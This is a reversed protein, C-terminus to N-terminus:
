NSAPRLDSLRLQINKSGNYENWEPFFVLDVQHGLKPLKGALRFGIAGLSRGGAGVKLRLHKAGVIRSQQVTVGRLMFQPTPNGLGFPQLCRLEELFEPTLAVLDSEVDLTLSPQFDEEQLKARVRQDFREQFKELNEQPLSLGAAYAHGGFKRLLDGCAHLAEVLHLGRISRASGKWDGGDQTLVISPLHFKEVLRSAVIGIVGQHWHGQAVVLSRFRQHLGQAEIVAFAEQAIEDELEKRSQNAGDLRQALDRAEGPDESLLLRVGLAADELRGVANIRPGIWFAVQDARVEDGELGSVEKLAKLGVRSTQQLVQLGERVLIRNIGTLPAMDAITGVAVLDLAQRLNPERDALAGAERLAQRLGVLLYFAVGVGALQKGPFSDGKQKPNLIAYAPPLTEPVEHHDTIILDIGLSRAVEAERVASIGNDVTVVVRTGGERIKKLAAENLSYGEKVRHPIYFDVRAGVSKFFNMLLATATTGDVDYDGYITILEQNQIARILRAVAQEMGMMQAPEPLHALSPHLFRTIEEPDRLERNLLIQATLPSIKQSRSLALALDPNSPTLIWRKNM